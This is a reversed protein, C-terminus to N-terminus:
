SLLARVCHASWTELLPFLDGLLDDKTQFSLNALADENASVDDTDLEFLHVVGLHVKGVDNSDDNILGVISNQHNGKIILEELLEREVAAFYTEKGLHSEKADVPNIHGGIGVSGQAHLRSEGSSKGRTYHLLSDQYRFLCYPIIQKHTPDDEAKERDMFFNNDPDVIAEFYNDSNESFGQFAGLDEFLERKIVLVEEGNYKSM